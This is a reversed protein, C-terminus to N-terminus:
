LEKNESIFSLFLNNKKTEIFYFRGYTTFNINTINLINQEIKNLSDININKTNKFSFIFYIIVIKSNERYKAFTALLFRNKENLELLYTTPKIPFDLAAYDEISLFNFLSDIFTEGTKIDILEINNKFNEFNILYKYEKSNKILISSSIERSYGRTNEINMEYKDNIINFLGRGDENYFFLKRKFSNITFEFLLYNSKDNNYSPYNIINHDEKLWNIFIIEEKNSIICTSNNFNYNNKLCINELTNNKLDICNTIYLKCNKTYIDKCSDFNEIIIPYKNEKCTECKKLNNNYIYGPMCSQCINDINYDIIYPDCEYCASNLFSCPYLYNNYLFYNLYNNTNLCNQTNFIMIYDNKCSICKMDNDDSSYEICEKCNNHCNNTENNIKNYDNLSINKNIEDYINTYNEYYNCIKDIENYFTNKPCNKLCQNKYEYQYIDDNKCDDICQSKNSILKSYKIIKNYNKPCKYNETCHYYNNLEDFYYYYDCKKYCNTEYKTNNIYIYDSKCETCNHKKYNGGNNCYKCSYFCKKYLDDNIDYYYGEIIENKKNNEICISGNVISGKPCKNYCINNYEYLIKNNICFETCTNNYMDLKKNKKFCPHSCNNNNIGLLLETKHDNICYKTNLPIGYLPSIIENSIKINFSYLNLYILSKCNYFM